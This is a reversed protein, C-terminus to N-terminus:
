RHPDDPVSARLRVGETGVTRILMHMLRANALPVLPDDAGAMLLTPQRLGPLWHISTWGAAPSWNCTTAWGRSGAQRARVTRRGAGPQHPFRRWLHRRQHQARLRRRHLAQPTAMKWLVGPSGPVMVVGPATACLILRRCRQRCTYAFEQAAAGGWSVGLVDVQASASATSSRRPWGRSAASATPGRRCSRVPRRGPHRLHRDRAGPMREALPALLEINGGIGNFMLLPVGRSGAQVGVRVAQQASACSRPRSRSAATAGPGTCASRAFGNCHSRRAEASIRATRPAPDQRRDVEAARRHLARQKPVKYGALEGRCHAIVRGRDLTAGPAKVVFLRVAEGTKEDPVGVCACEAVGPCATAM